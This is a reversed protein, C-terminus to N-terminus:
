MLSQTTICVSCQSQWLRRVCSITLSHYPDGTDRERVLVSTDLLIVPM